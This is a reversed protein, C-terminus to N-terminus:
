SVPCYGKVASDFRVEAEFADLDDVDVVVCWVEDPNTEYLDLAEQPWDDATDAERIAEVFSQGVGWVYVM